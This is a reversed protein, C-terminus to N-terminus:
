RLLSIVDRILFGPRQVQTSDNESEQWLAEHSPWLSSRRALSQESCQAAVQTLRRRGSNGLIGVPMQEMVPPDVCNPLHCRASVVPMTVGRDLGRPYFDAYFTSQEGRAAPAAVTVQCHTLVRWSCKQSLSVSLVGRFVQFM